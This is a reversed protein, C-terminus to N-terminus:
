ATVDSSGAALAGSPRVTEATQLCQVAVSFLLSEMSPDVAVSFEHLGPQMMGATRFITQPHTDFATLLSASGAIEEPALLLLHGGTGEAIRFYSLDLRGGCPWGARALTRTQQQAGVLLSAAFVAAVGIGM